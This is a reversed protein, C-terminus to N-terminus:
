KQFSNYEQLSQEKTENRKKKLLLSSIWHGKLLFTKWFTFVSMRCKYTKIDLFRFPKKCLYMHVDCPFMVKFYLDGHLAFPSHIQVKLIRKSFMSSVLRLVCLDGGMEPLSNKEPSPPLPTGGPLSFYMISSCDKDSKFPCLYLPSSSAQNLISVEVSM